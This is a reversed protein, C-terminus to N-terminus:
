IDKLQASIFPADLPNTIINKIINNSFISLKDFYISAKLIIFYLIKTVPKKIKATIRETIVKPILKIRSTILFNV